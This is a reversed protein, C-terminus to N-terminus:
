YKIVSSHRGADAMYKYIDVTQERGLKASNKEYKSENEQRSFEGRMRLQEIM